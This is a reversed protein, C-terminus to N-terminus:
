DFKYVMKITFFQVEIRALYLSQPALERFVILQDPHIHMGDILHISALYEIPRERTNPNHIPEIFEDYLLQFFNNRGNYVNILDFEIQTTHIFVLLDMISVVHVCHMMVRFITVMPDPNDYYENSKIGSQTM